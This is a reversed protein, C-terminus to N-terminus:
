SNEFYKMQVFIFIRQWDIDTEFRKSIQEIFYNIYKNCNNYMINIIFCNKKLQKYFYSIKIKFGSPKYEKFWPFLAKM